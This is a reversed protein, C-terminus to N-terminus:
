QVVWYTPYLRTNDRTEYTFLTRTSLGVRFSIPAPPLQGSVIQLEKMQDGITVRYRDERSTDHM